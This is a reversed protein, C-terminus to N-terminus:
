KLFELEDFEGYEGSISTFEDRPIVNVMQDKNVKYIKIPGRYSGYNFGFPYTSEQHVLELEPYENDPDDMLYLKAVLSDKVKESLYMVAGEQDFQQNVVNPYIYVTANIGTGYDTLKGNSYLYRVPLRYQQNNYVYICEAQGVIKGTQNGVVVNESEIIIAGVVAKGAPLFILKGDAEYTLDDDLYSGGNYIRIMGNKTERNEAPNSVLAPIYTARDSSKADDGISSYASYKGIDSPDILLYSVNHALMFSKATEPYPTTLVYRGILHNWWGNAHGGDTVTPRDGGTQVWYGYDWWHLFVSGEDTNNRVWSMAKQWDTNYSPTQYKAQNNITNFYGFSTVIIMIALIVVILFSAMKILDDKNKRGFNAIEFLAIPVMLSIFPVIAFFVRIASRVALLMPIMWAAIIIWRVDINWESKRYIYVSSIILALFSVLFLTKSIFNDGNFIATSSTRSFLIGIVFFAFSATFLYRYKRQNINVALKGGVIFCGALFTYFVVRGVQGILDVVYPQKNEAVTLGVRSTGFPYLARLILDYIMSFFNGVLLQYFLGGALFVIVISSIESNRKIKLPITKTKLIITEILCYGLTFLTLIGVSSLMFTKLIYSMGFGFFSASFLVGCVFLAYFIVYNWEARNDGTFWRILFAAPLIMFLFKAGGGWSAIAFMVAIGSALGILGSYTNNSKKNELYIMGAAFILLALFFGFMGIAEHDSFGALTRYLYPPIISLILSAIVAISKSKTLMLVLLFFLILGLAYFIAPNLVNALSLSADSNFIKITKWLLVTSQPLIENSWGVNLAGYRMNDIEPLVGNNAVLTESIRLFYYPDLALPTYDGTTSDILNGTTIPQVRINVSMFLIIALVLITAVWQYKKNSMIDLVPKKLEDLKM